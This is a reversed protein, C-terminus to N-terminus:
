FPVSDNKNNNNNSQGGHQESINQWGDDNNQQQPQQNNQQQSQQNNQNNNASKHKQINKVIIKVVSRNGGDQAQWREQILDGSFGIKDGKFYYKAIVESALKGMAKCNFFSTEYEDYGQANKQGTKKGKCAVSFEAIAFQKGDRGNVWRVEPDKTLGGNGVVKIIDAM